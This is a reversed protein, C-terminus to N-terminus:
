IEENANATEKKLDLILLKEEVHANIVELWYEKEEDPLAKAWQVVEKWHIHKQSTKRKRWKREDPDTIIRSSNFCKKSCHKRKKEASKKVKFEEGCFECIMTIPTSAKPRYCQRSCYIQTKTSPTFTDECTPCGVPICCRDKNYCARSCYVDHSNRYRFMKGCVLCKNDPMRKSSAYCERSCFKTKDWRSPSVYFKKECEPCTKYGGLKQVQPSCAISCHVKRYNYTTFTTSCQPCVKIYKDANRKIWKKNMVRSCEKCNSGHNHRLSRGTDNWDHNRKCLTGLYYKEEDFELYTYDVEIMTNFHEVCRAIISM